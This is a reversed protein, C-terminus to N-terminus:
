SLSLRCKRELDCIQSRRHVWECAVQRVSALGIMREMQWDRHNLGFNEYDVKAGCLTCSGETSLIKDGAGYNVPEACGYNERLM